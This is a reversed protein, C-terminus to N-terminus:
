YVKIPPIDTPLLAELVRFSKSDNAMEVFDVSKATDALVIDATYSCTTGAPLSTSPSVSFTRTDNSAQRIKIESVSEEQNNSVPRVAFSTTWCPDRVEVDIEIDEGEFDNEFKPQLRLTYNGVDDKGASM